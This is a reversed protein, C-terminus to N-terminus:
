IGAQPAITLISLQNILYQSHVINNITVIGTFKRYEALDEKPINAGLM